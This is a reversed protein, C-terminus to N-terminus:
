TRITLGDSLSLKYARIAPFIAAVVGGVFIGLLIKAESMTLLNFSLLLGTWDEIAPRGFYLLAFISFVGACIGALVLTTAEWLLLGFVHGPRAGVSRLIAMERRRENLSGLVSIVMGLFATFVVMASIVLLAIEVNSLIRWLQAFAIGPLIASIAEPKYTNVWRQLSFTMMRSKLGVYLATASKPALDLERVQEASKIADGRPASGGEWGVHIAEIAEMKLHVTRDVPTGTPALIGSVRFPKDGHDAGLSVRGSGHAVVIESGVEYGLDEAVTHGIVADYLDDFRQGSALELKQNRRYRYHDFYEASTGMVRFGRHSDGLSIPVVWKVEPRAKIDEVTEWTINATADGIRFVSYLLLQVDGARAGVILDTGAITNLFSTKTGTRVKEVGLLMVVSLAISLVTLLATTRRNRLSQLALRLVIM